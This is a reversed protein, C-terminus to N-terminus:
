ESPTLPVIRVPDGIGIGLREVEGAGIEIVADVVDTRGNGDADAGYSRCPLAACPPVAPVLDLVRGDRVFIM